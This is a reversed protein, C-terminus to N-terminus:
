LIGIPHEGSRAPATWVAFYALALTAYGHNALLAAVQESWHMGGASGGVVIVGPNTSAGTPLFLTGALGEERVAMRTTTPAVFLRQLTTSASLLGDIEATLGTQLPVTGAQAFMTDDHENPDVRMSWFLGMADIAAYTGALPRQTAVDVAGRGDANFTAHSAWLRGTDDQMRARVTVQQGPVLGTLRIQVPEDILPQAQVVELRPRANTGDRTRM